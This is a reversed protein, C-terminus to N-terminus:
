SITLQAYQVKGLKRKIIENYLDFEPPRNHLNHCDSGIFDMWGNKILKLTSYRSLRNVVSHSNFQLMCGLDVLEQFVKETNRQSAEYREAHAIIPAVDFKAILRDIQKFVSPGWKEVYPLELLLYKTDEICLPSITDYSFLTESLYTESGLLMKFEPQNNSCIESDSKEEQTMDSEQIFEAVARKLSKYSGQRRELFDSLNEQHSYFHPTLVISTIGQEKLMQILALSEEIDSAGDDMYPLIHTHIDMMM